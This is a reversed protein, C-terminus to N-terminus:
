ASSSRSSGRSTATSSTSTTSTAPRRGPSTSARVAATSPKLSTPAECSADGQRARAHRGLRREGAGVAVGPHRVDAEQTQVPGFAKDTSLESKLRAIGSRVASSTVPGDVVILVPSVRGASFQRDLVGFAAKSDFGDPFSSVGSVGTKMFIAPAAALLLVGVGISLALAPRRMARQALRAWASTRGDARASLLRRGLYPIKLSDVRDGLLSLVAPLLTLAAVVSM